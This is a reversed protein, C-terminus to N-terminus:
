LGRRLIKIAWVSLLVLSVSTGLEIAETTTIGTYSNDFGIEICNPPTVIFNSVVGNLTKTVTINDPLSISTSIIQSGDELFVESQISDSVQQLSSYCYQKYLKAM